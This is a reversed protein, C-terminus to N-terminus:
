TFRGADCLMAPCRWWQQRGSSVTDSSCDTFCQPVERTFSAHM